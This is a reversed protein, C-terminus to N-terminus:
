TEFLKKLIVCKEGKYYLLAGCNPSRIQTTMWESPSTRAAFFSLRFPATRAARITPNGNYQGHSIAQDLHEPRVKAGNRVLLEILGPEFCVMLADNGSGDRFHIDGGRRILREYVALRRVFQPDQAHIPQWLAECRTFVTSDVSLGSPDAGRDLLFDAAVVNGAAVAYDLPRMKLVIDGCPITNVLSRRTDAKWRDLSAKSIAHGLRVRMSLQGQVRLLEAELAQALSEPTGTDLAAVLLSFDECSVNGGSDGIAHVGNSTFTLLVSILLRRASRHAARVHM